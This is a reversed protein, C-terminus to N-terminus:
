IHDKIIALRTKHDAEPYDWNAGIHDTSFPGNNNTDTKRNPVRVPNMLQGVKVEPRAKLYRALLEYRSADYGAPKPFPVRNDKEDTLCLRYNYAQVKRDGEGPKGLEEPQIFPLRKKGDLGNVKVPWQHAKSFKQVGALPEDYTSRAERGVHYKVGAKAMLDGEYSADIYVKAKFHDGKVTKLAVVRAGKREVSELRQGDLVTIKAEKLMSALVFSAAKPEIRYGDACDRVQQSREGYHETYHARVREYFERSYGGIAARNGVDTAGLGGSVMGGVHKGPELLLVTREERAAAIAAIVGSATGGYVVVDASHDKARCPAALCLPLLALVTVRTRM